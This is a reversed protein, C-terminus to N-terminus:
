ITLELPAGHRMTNIAFSRCKTYQDISTDLNVQEQKQFVKVLQGKFERHYIKQSIEEDIQKNLFVIFDYDGEAFLSLLTSRKYLSLSINYPSFGCSHALEILSKWKNFIINNTAILSVGNGIALNLLLDIVSDTTLKTSADLFLGSGLAMDKKIYSLQGPIYRNSFQRDSLNLENLRLAKLFDKLKSKEQETVLGLYVEFQKYISGALKKANYIRREELLKSPHALYNKVEIQLDYKLNEDKNMVSVSQSFLRIYSKGGAKPGTGSKKFGGFPEIAVRAGTSPRNVYINGAELKPLIYDIDDQSQCFLGGTLAYETSNFITIAEDISDYGIIHILPGFVEQKAITDHKLVTDSSLEFISPGVCFGSFENQSKDLIIR